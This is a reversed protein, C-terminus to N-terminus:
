IPGDNWFTVLGAGNYSLNGRTWKNAGGNVIVASWLMTLEVSAFPGAFSIIQVGGDRNIDVTQGVGINRLYLKIELAGIAGSAAPMTAPATGAPAVDAATASFTLTTAANAPTDLIFHDYAPTLSQNVDSSDIKFPARQGFQTGRYSERVIPSKPLRLVASPDDLTFLQHVSFQGNILQVDNSGLDSIYIGPDNPPDAYRIFRDELESGQKLAEVADTLQETPTAVLAPQVPESSDGILVGVVGGAGATLVIAGNVADGDHINYAM